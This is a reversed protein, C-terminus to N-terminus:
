GIDKGFVTKPLSIESLGQFILELAPAQHRVCLRLPGLIQSSSFGCFSAVSTSCSSIQDSFFRLFLPSPIASCCEEAAQPHGNRKRAVSASSAAHGMIDPGHHSWRAPESAFRTNKGSIFLISWTRRCTWRRNHASNWDGPAIIPFPHPMPQMQKPPWFM